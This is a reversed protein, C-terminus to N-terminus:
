VVDESAGEIAMNIVPRGADPIIESIQQWFGSVRAQDFESNDKIMAGTEPDYVSTDSYVGSNNASMFIEYSLKDLQSQRQLENNYASIANVSDQLVVRIGNSANQISANNQAAAYNASANDLARKNELNFTNETNAKFIAASNDFTANDRSAQNLAAVDGQAIPMARDIAAAQSAGQAISTNMLGRSNMNQDSQTRAMKLYDSNEALLTNMQESLTTPAYNSAAYSSGVATTPSSGFVKDISTAPPATAAPPPPPTGAGAGAGSTASTTAPPSTEAASNSVGQFNATLGAQTIDGRKLAGAWYERGGVDGYTGDANKERKLIDRYANDLHTNNLKDVQRITDESKFNVSDMFAKKVDEQSKGSDLEKQWYELGGADGARGLQNKYLDEVFAM